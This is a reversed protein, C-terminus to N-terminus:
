EEEIKKDDDLKNTQFATPMMNPLIKLLVPLLIAGGPLMFVTLAPISKALDGLQTRIKRKEEKSLEKHTSKTILAMLEKSEQLEQFIKEKNNAVVNVVKKSVNGYIQSFESKDSFYPLKDFNSLIFSQISNQADILELKNFDLKEALRELFEQEKPDIINDALIVILAIELFWRRVIWTLEDPLRLDYFSLGEKLLHQIDNKDDDPLSSSMLFTDFVAKEKDGIIGNSTTAAIIIHLAAKQIDQIRKELFPFSQGMKIKHYLILDTYIFSNSLYNMWFSDGQIKVHLRKSLLLDLKEYDDKQGFLNFKSNKKHNLMKYFEILDKPDIEHKDGNLLNSLIFGEYLLLKYSDATSWKGINEPYFIFNTPYGYIIGTDQINLYLNKEPDFMYQDVDLPIEGKSALEHYKPIWGKGEPTFSM